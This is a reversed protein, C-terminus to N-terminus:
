CIKVIEFIKKEKRTKSYTMLLFLNIFSKIQLNINLM